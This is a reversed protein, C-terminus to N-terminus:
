SRECTRRLGGREGNNINVTSSACAAATDRKTTVLARWLHREATSEACKSQNAVHAKYFAFKHRIVDAGMKNVLEKCFMAVDERKHM